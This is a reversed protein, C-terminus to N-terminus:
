DSFSVNLILLNKWGGHPYNRSLEEIKMDNKLSEHNGQLPHFVTIGTWTKRGDDTDSEIQKLYLDFM